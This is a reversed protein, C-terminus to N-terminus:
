FVLWRMRQAWGLFFLMACRRTEWCLCACVCVCGCRERVCASVCVSVGARVRETLRACEWWACFFRKPPIPHLRRTKEGAWLSLFARKESTYLEWGNKRLMCWWKSGKNGRKEVRFWTKPRSFGPYRLAKRTSPFWSRADKKTRWEFVPYKEAPPNCDTCWSKLYGPHTLPNGGRDYNPPQKVPNKTRLACVRRIAYFPSRAFVFSGANEWKVWVFQVSALVADGGSVKSTTFFQAPAHRRDDENGGGRCPTKSSTTKLTPPHSSVGGWTVAQDGEMGLPVTVSLRKQSPLLQSTNSRWSKFVCEDHCMGLQCSRVRDKKNGDM